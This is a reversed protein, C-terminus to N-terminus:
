LECVVMTRFLIGGETQIVSVLFGVPAKAMNAEISCIKMLCAPFELRVPITKRSRVEGLCTTESPLPTELVPM